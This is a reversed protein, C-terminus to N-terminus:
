YCYSKIFNIKAIKKIRKKTYLNNNIQNNNIKYKSNEEDNDNNNEIKVNEIYNNLLNNQVDKKINNTIIKNKNEFSATSNNYKKINNASNNIQKASRYKNVMSIENISFRNENKQIDMSSNSSNTVNDKSVKKRGSLLNKYKNYDGTCSNIKKASFCKKM